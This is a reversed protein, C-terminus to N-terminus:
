FKCIPSGHFIAVDQSFTKKLYDGLSATCVGYKHNVIALFHLHNIHGGIFIYHFYPM